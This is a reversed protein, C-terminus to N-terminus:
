ACAAYSVEYPFDSMGFPQKLDYAHNMVPMQGTVPPRNRYSYISRPMTDTCWYLTMVSVIESDTPDTDTWDLLKEGVWALLAAPDSQLALGITSPRTNHMNNYASGTHTFAHARRLRKRDDANLPAPFGLLFHALWDALGPERLYDTRARWSPYDRISQLTSSIFTPTLASALQKIPQPILRAPVSIYFPNLPPPGTPCFNLHVAVVHDPYMKAMVRSLSAAWDGAQIAYKRYGLGIMLKHVIRAEDALLLDGQPGSHQGRGFSDVTPSSSWLYGTQSPAVIDFAPVHSPASNGPHALPHIVNFFDVVSSPWGHLLLLPIVPRHSSAADTSAREWIFHMNIDEISSTYHDFSKLRKDFATWTDHDAGPRVQGDSKDMLFDRWAFLLQRHRAHTIGFRPKDMEFAAVPNPRM